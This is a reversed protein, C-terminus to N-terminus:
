SELGLPFRAERLTFALNFGMRSGIQGLIGGCKQVQDASAFPCNIVAWLPWLVHYAGGAQGQQFVDPEDHTRLAVHINECIDELVAQVRLNMTQLIDTLLDPGEGEVGMGSDVLTFIGIASSYFCLECARILSLFSAAWRGRYANTRDPSPNSSSAEPEVCQWEIPIQSDWMDIQRLISRASHVFDLFSKQNQKTRDQARVVWQRSRHYFQLINCTITEASITGAPHEPCISAIYDNDWLESTPDTTALM